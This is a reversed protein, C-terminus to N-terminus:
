LPWDRGRDSFPTPAETARNSIIGLSQLSDGVPVKLAKQSYASWTHFFKDKRYNEHDQVHVPVRPSILYLILVKPPKDSSECAM